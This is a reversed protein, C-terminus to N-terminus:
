SENGEGTVDVASGDVLTLQGNIIVNDGPEVDGEIATMDSQTETVTVDIKVAENDRAIFIFTDDEETVIASTPVIITDKVKNEPVAMEAIMGPLINGDKNKVTAEVPYLGTDEPMEKVRTITADYAEDGITTQHEDDKHFLARVNATVNLTLKMTDVDAIIALPEENSIKDGEKVDLSTVIGDGDATISESGAPSVITAIADDEKVEDGGAVELTDVKGPNQIMVPTTSSPELRGYVTKTITLDGKEVEEVEVPIVKDADDEKVEAESCAVLIGGVIILVLLTYVKKLTMMTEEQEPFEWERLIEETRINYQELSCWKLM